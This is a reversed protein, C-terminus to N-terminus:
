KVQNIEAGFALPSNAPKWLVEASVGGYGRELLGGTVRTYVTETPKSYWALTLEPITPSSNDRYM